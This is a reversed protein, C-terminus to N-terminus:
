AVVAAHNIGPCTVVIRRAVAADGADRLTSSASLRDAAGGADGSRRASSIACIRLIASRFVIWHGIGCPTRPAHACM